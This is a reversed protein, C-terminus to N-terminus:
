AVDEKVIKTQYDKYGCHKCYRTIQIRNHHIYYIKNDRKVRETKVLGLFKRDIEQMARFRGCHPCRRSIIWKIISYVISVFSLLLIWFGWIKFGTEIDQDSSTSTTSNWDETESPKLSTSSQSSSKFTKSSSHTEQNDLSNDIPFDNEQTTNDISKHSLNNDEEEHSVDSIPNNKSAKKIETQGQSNKKQQREEERKERREERKQQREERREKRQVKKDQEISQPIASLDSLCLFILLGCIIQKKMVFTKNGDM